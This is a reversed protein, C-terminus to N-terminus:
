RLLWEENKGNKMGKPTSEENMKERWTTFLDFPQRYSVTLTGEKWTANSIVFKLLERKERPPQREFLIPMIKILELLQRGEPLYNRDSGAKQHKIARELQNMQLTWQGTHRDFMEATIIGDLKDRYMADLRKEIREHEAALRRLAGERLSAKDANALRLADGAWKVFPEPLVIRNVADCFQAEIVEQRAYKEPCKGHQGTCHYYVYKEKKIEGIVACGCHGCRIMGSFALDHKIVRYRNSYKRSLVSQV